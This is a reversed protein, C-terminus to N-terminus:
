PSARKPHKDVCIKVRNPRKCVPFTDIRSLALLYEGVAFHAREDARLRVVPGAVSEARQPHEEPRAVHVRLGSGLPSPLLLPQLSVRAATCACRNSKRM